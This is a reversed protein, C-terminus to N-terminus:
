NLGMSKYNELRWRYESELDDRVTRVDALNYAAHVAIQPLVYEVFTKTLLEGTPDFKFPHSTYADEMSGFVASPIQLAVGNGRDPNIGMYAMREKPDECGFAWRCFGPNLYGPSHQEENSSRAAKVLPGYKGRLVHPEPPAMEAATLIQDGIVLRVFRNLPVLALTLPDMTYNEMMQMTEIALRRMVEDAITCRRRLRDMRRKEQAIFQDRYEGEITAAWDLSDQCWELLRGASDVIPRRDAPAELLARLHAEAIAFPDDESLPLLHVSRMCVRYIQELVADTVSNGADLYWWEKVDDPLSTVDFVVPLIVLQGQRSRLDVAYSFERKIWESRNAAATRLQILVEAGAMRRPIAETLKTNTLSTGDERTVQLGRDRLYTEVAEALTADAFSYSIFTRPGFNRLPYRM